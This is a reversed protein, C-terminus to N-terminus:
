RIPAAPLKRFIPGARSRSRRSLRRHANARSIAHDPQQQYERRPVSAHPAPKHDAPKGASSVLPRWLRMVMTLHCASAQGVEALVFRKLGEAIARYDRRQTWAIPIGGIRNGQGT